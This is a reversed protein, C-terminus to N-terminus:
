GSIGNQTLEEMEERLEVLHMKEEELLRAMMDKVKGSGTQSYIEQYLLISDKEAQIGLALAKVPTTAEWGGGSKLDQFVGTRILSILLRGEAEDVEGGDAALEEGLIKEFIAKHDLEERSLREFVSRIRDSEAKGAMAAYFGAGKEENSIAARVITELVSRKDM